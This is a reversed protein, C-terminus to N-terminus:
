LRHTSGTHAREDWVARRTASFLVETVYHEMKRMSTVAQPGVGVPRWGAPESVVSRRLWRTACM